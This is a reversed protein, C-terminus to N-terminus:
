LVGRRATDNDSESELPMCLLSRPALGPTKATLLDMESFSLRARAKVCRRPFLVRLFFRRADGAAAARRRAACRVRVLVRVCQFASGQRGGEVVRFVRVCVCTASRRRGHWSRRRCHLAPPERASAATQRPWASATSGAADGVDEDDDAVAAAADLAGTM